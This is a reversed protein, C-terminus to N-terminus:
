DVPNSSLKAVLEALRAEEKDSLNHEKRIEDAIQQERSNKFLQAEMWEKKEKDAQSTTEPKEITQNMLESHQANVNYREVHREKEALYAEHKLQELTESARLANADRIDSDMQHIKDADELMMITRSEELQARNFSAQSEKISVLEQVCSDYARLASKVTRYKIATLFASKMVDDPPLPITSLNKKDVVLEGRAIYEGDDSM